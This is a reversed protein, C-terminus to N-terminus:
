SIPLGSLPCCIMPHVVVGGVPCSYISLLQSDVINFALLILYSAPGANGYDEIKHSDPTNIDSIARTLTSLCELRMSM